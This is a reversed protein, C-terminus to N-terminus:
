PKGLITKIRSRTLRSKVCTQLIHNGEELKKGFEIKDGIEM